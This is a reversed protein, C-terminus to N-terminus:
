AGKKNWFELMGLVFHWGCVGMNIGPNWTNRHVAAIKKSRKEKAKPLRYFSAESKKKFRNICDIVCWSTRM